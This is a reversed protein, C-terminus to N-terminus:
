GGRGRRGRVYGVLLGLMGAVCGAKWAFLSWPKWWAGTQVEVVDTLGFAVFLVAAIACKRRVCAERLRVAQVAFVAGIVGWVGAEVYNAVAFFPDAADPM